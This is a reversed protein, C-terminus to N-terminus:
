SGEHKRLIHGQRVGRYYQPVPCSGTLCSETRGSLVPHRSSADAQTRPVSAPITAPVPKGGPLRHGTLVLEETGVGPKAEPVKSRPKSSPAPPPLPAAGQPSFQCQEQIGERRNRLRDGRRMPLSRFGPSTLDVPPRHSDGRWYPGMNVGDEGMVPGRNLARNGRAM